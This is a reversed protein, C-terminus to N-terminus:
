VRGMREIVEVRKSVKNIEEVSVVPRPMREMGKAIAAALFEEGIAPTPEGPTIPVGGGLQNLTSLLPAFMGTARATMVSEGNSLMAPISDSTGTGPGSVLGGTAFKASNIISTASTMASLIQAIVTAITAFGWPSGANAAIAESIAKGTNIAVTALALTKALATMAKSEAGFNRVLQAASNTLSSITNWKVKEANIQVQNYRQKAATVQADIDQLRKAYAEASEGDEQRANARIELWKNLELEAKKLESDAGTDYGLGNIQNTFKDNIAKVQADTTDKVYEDTIAKRRANFAKHMAELQKEREKEDSIESKIRAEELKENDELERLKIDRRKRYDEGAAELLWALWQTEREVEARIAEEDIKALEQNKIKELSTIQSNMAKRADANLNKETALRNKLTEIENDYQTTIEARRRELNNEILKNLLEDAKQQEQLAKKNAEARLRAAKQAATEQQKAYKDEAPSYETVGIKKYIQKAANAQQELGETARNVVEDLQRKAEANNDKLREAAEKSRQANIRAAGAVTVEFRSLSQSATLIYDEGERLGRLLEPIVGTTIYSQGARIRNYFGGGAVTSRNYETQNIYRQTADTIQQEYAAAKARAVLANVVADTNKVLLSEADTVGTVSFGLNHFAEQNDTIFKEKAQMNNGLANYERMLKQYAAINEGATQAVSNRWDENMKRQFANFEQQSKQIQDLADKGKFLNAIWKVIEGGYVTLLTVGVSIATNWSFFAGSLAKWISVGARGEAAAAKNAERLRNIEDVLMPINNSIALFFTNMSMAANPMERLIQQVSMNLGNFGSEYNGVNRYFRNTEAEAEKLEQSVEMIQKRLNEGMEGKRMERGLQDYSATLRSLQARLSVLSGENERQEKINNQYERSLARIDAQYAKVQERNQAMATNYQQESITGQKLKGKLEQQKTKLQNIAQTYKAIGQVAQDYRVRIEIIKQQDTQPM